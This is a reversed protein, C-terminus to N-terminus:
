AIKLYFYRGHRQVFPKAPGIGQAASLRLAEKTTKIDVKRTEMAHIKNRHFSL